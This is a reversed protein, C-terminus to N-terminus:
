YYDEEQVKQYMNNKRRSLLLLDFRSLLKRHCLPIPIFLHFTDNKLNTM